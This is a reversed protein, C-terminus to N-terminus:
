TKIFNGCRECLWGVAKWNAPNYKRVYVRRLRSYDENWSCYPKSHLNKLEHAKNIYTYKYEPSELECEAGLHTYHHIRTTKGRCWKSHEYVATSCKLCYFIEPM